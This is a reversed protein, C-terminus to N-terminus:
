YLDIDREDDEDEERGLNMNMINGLLDGFEVQGEMLKKSILSYSSLGHLVFEMLLSTEKNAARPFHTKVIDRLGDVKNLQQDLAKESIDQVLHIKNGKEFWQIIKRYPNGGNDQKKKKFLDPNPFYKVFQTRIAKDLLNLAVQQPGEQEGEYVLEIKGTIAPIIGILDSVRVQTQKEKNLIIRREAASVANEFATITLRASVGSKKDVFESNRAEFAVQEILRKMIDPVEIREVQGPLVDAEQATIELATEIDKPYHTIIQSQIRDKLPTVIAGRNTYDEPNATFVFL